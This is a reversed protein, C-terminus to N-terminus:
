ATASNGGPYDHLGIGVSEVEQRANLLAQAFEGVGDVSAQSEAHAAKLAKVTSTKSLYKDCNLVADSWENSGTAHQSFIRLSQAAGKLQGFEFGIQGGQM